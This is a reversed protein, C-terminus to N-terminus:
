DINQRKIQTTFLLHPFLPNEQFSDFEAIFFKTTVFPRRMEKIEKAELVCPVLLYM